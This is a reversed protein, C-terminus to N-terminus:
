IIKIDASTTTQTLSSSGCCIFLLVPPHISLHVPHTSPHIPPPATITTTRPLPPQPLHPPPTSPLPPQPLHPLPAPSRQNHYTPPPVPSFHNHYRLMTHCCFPPLSQLPPQPLLATTTPNATAPPATPPAASHPSFAPLRYHELAAGRPAWSRVPHHGVVIKVAADNSLLRKLEATQAEVDQEAAGGIVPVTRGDARWALPTTDIFTVQLGVDGGVDTLAPAPCFLRGVRGKEHPYM